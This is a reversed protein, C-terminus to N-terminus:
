CGIATSGLPVYTCLGDNPLAFEVIIAVLGTSPVGGGGTWKLFMDFGGNQGSQATSNGIATNIGTALTCAVPAALAHINCTTVLENANAATTGLTFVDTTTSNFATYIVATVRLIAANYPLSANKVKVTCINSVQVCSNFAFTTRSYAVQQSLFFRPEPQQPVTSTTPAVQAQAIPVYALALAGVMLLNVGVAGVANRLFKMM